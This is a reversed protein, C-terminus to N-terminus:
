NKLFVSFFKKKQKFFYKIYFCVMFKLVGHSQKSSLPKLHFSFKHINHSFSNLFLIIFIEMQFYLWRIFIYVCYNFSQQCHMLSHLLFTKPLIISINWHHKLHHGLPPIRCCVDGYMVWLQGLSVDQVLHHCLESHMLFLRVSYTM